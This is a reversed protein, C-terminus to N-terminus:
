NSRLQLTVQEGTNTKCTKETEEGKASITVDFTCSGIPLGSIHAETVGQPLRPRFTVEGDEVKAGLICYYILSLYATASWTQHTCSGWEGIHGDAYEQLGGYPKGTEPHYIEHFEGNEVAREALLRLEKEYKDEFGTEFAARAFFGQVHPWILGAHRGYNGLRTYREFCPWVCAVGGETVQANEMVRRARGADAVGFLIAYAIGMGEQFDCEEAMYDYSGIEENWFRDNIAKRLAEGKKRFSGGDMGMAECLEACVVYARYYCCNTSLTFMPVGHGKKPVMRRNERRTPWNAIGSHNTNAYKDPYASVGDGYVAAGRFLGREKDFEEAELLALTNAIAERATSRFAVDGTVKLYQDAGQAWLICDWYEGGIRVKGDAGKELVSCLTDKAM